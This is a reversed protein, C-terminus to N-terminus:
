SASSSDREAPINRESLDMGLTTREGRLGAKAPIRLASFPTHQDHTDAQTLAADQRETEFFAQKSVMIVFASVHRKPPAPDQTSTCYM